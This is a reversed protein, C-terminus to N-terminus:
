SAKVIFGDIANDALGGGYLINADECTALANVRDNSPITGTGEPLVYWSYGGDITRFIRGAPTATDHAMYGVSPTVFVVDRVQGAGSGSFTKQTWTQGSDRTYWLQGGATGVWWETETRMFVTNLHVGVAPGTVSQWTNGGDTTYVVTNTNGVAVLNLTDYGHIANLPNTTVSGASQVEVGGTVDATFYIYGGAGVIWVFSSGAAFIDRPEGGVVFGTTVETWTQSEANLIDEIETYHLSNSETSIVVLYRGVCALADPDENAALSTINIDGWTGGGDETYIIEATLGPSGGATLTLAFVISCGDSPLGCLGCNASDCVVIDVIEQVVQAAAHETLVLPKVEYYDEGTFPVEENVVAREDPGLAGLDDTSYNTVRAKELIAVKEWGRNFDKPDKCRGMHIHLTHDCGDKALKLLTSLDMTYRSTITLSPDDPEGPIKGVRVFNGYSNPDPIKISPADGQGWSVGGAKWLGEYSPATAPGSGWRQLFIRSFDNRYIDAM